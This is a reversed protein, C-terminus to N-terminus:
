MSAYSWPVPVRHYTGIHLGHIWPPFISAAFLQTRNYFSSCHLSLFNKPGFVPKKDEIKDWRTGESPFFRRSHVLGQGCCFYVLTGVLMQPLYDASLLMVANFELCCLLLMKSMKSWPVVYLLYTSGLPLFLFACTGYRCKPTRPVGCRYGLM